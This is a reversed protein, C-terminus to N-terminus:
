KVLEYLKNLVDVMSQTDQKCYVLMDHKIQEHIEGKSSLLKGYASMADTGNRVSPLSKYADASSPCLAPLVYKISYKGCMENCYVNRNKFPIALDVLRDVLAYLEKSYQPLLDALKNIATREYGSYMLITGSRGLDAILKKAVEELNNGYYEQLYELHTTPGCPNTQKHISYQIPRQYNPHTGNIFPIKDAITEFDLHYIPYNLSKLFSAVSGKEVKLPKNFLSFEIQEIIKNRTDIGTIKNQNQFLDSFTIIGDNFLMYSGKLLAVNFINDKPLDHYCYQFFGCATCDKCGERIPENATNRLLTLNDEVNTLPRVIKAVFYKKIDLKDHFVYDSNIFLYNVSKIRYGLKTLVYYQFSVNNLYKKKLKGSFPLSSSSVEYIEFENEDVRHLIDVRCFLDKYIFSAGCITLTNDKILSLTIKNAKKSDGSCNDVYSYPGFYPKALNKIVVGQEMLSDDFDSIVEEDKNFISSFFLRKCQCFNVYDTKKILNLELDEKRTDSLVKDM